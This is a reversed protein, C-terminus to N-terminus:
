ADDDEEYDECSSVAECEPCRNFDCEASTKKGAFDEDSCHLEQVDGQWGCQTCEIEPKM